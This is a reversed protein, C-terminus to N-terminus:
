NCSIRVSFAHMRWWLLLLRSTYGILWAGNKTQILAFFMTFHFSTFNRHFSLVSQPPQGLWHLSPWLHQLVYAETLRTSRSIWKPWLIRSNRAPHWSPIQAPADWCANPSLLFYESVRYIQSSKFSFPLERKTNDIREQIRTEAQLSSVMQVKGQVKGQMTKAPCKIGSAQHLQGHGFLHSHSPGFHLSKWGRSWLYFVLHNVSNEVGIQKSWKLNVLKVLKTFSFGQHWFPWPIMSGVDM